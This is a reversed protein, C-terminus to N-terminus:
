GSLSSASMSAAFIEEIVSEGTAPFYASSSAPVTRLFFKFMRYNDSLKNLAAYTEKWPDLREDVFDNLELFPKVSNAMFQWLGLAGSRSKATTKYYSEVVPLYELEPPLGANQIAKRVFLRLEMAQELSDRLLANYTGKIFVKRFAEVEEREYGTLYLSNYMIKKVDPNPHLSQSNLYETTNIYPHLRPIEGTYSKAEVSTVCLSISLLVAPVFLEKTM